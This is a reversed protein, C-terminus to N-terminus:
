FSYTMGLWFQRGLEYIDESDGAPPTRDFVNNVELSLVLLQKRYTTKEWDLRWDFAWYDPRAAKRYAVLEAPIGQETKESTSLRDRAEYEGLYRTVNTFTFNGPLRGTYIINFMHERNYDLRPLDNSNIIEGDYWVEEELNLENFIDDYSENSSQQDSYTYNVGLYHNRWQRTWSVKVSAYESSGNNNLEWDRQTQDDVTTTILERAFQDQNDRELYNIELSGNFLQQAIGVTWEDSYPTDLKSYQHGLLAQNSGPTWDTLQNSGDTRKTRTQLQYPARAERLKYTLLSQGYYRNYGGLLVTRGNRFIDWSGALRYALDTNEMYDDHSLRLGPRITFPGTEVLDDLYAAYSNITASQREAGYARRERFYVEGDLCSPDDANCNVTTDKVARNLAHEYTTQKRHFTGDDHSVETGVNFIHAFRGALVPKSVLELRGQLSEEENDIDGYGGEASYPLDYLEGWNRSPTDRPWLYHHSPAQRSNSNTLYAASIELVGYPLEETLKGSFSYGGRDIVIDSNRANDIFFEEESPTYSATLQLARSTEPLWAYKLFYNELTKKNDSWNDINFIKLDSRIIKYAGLLGMSENLPVDLELGADYKKFRPHLGQDSSHYFEERRASDIKFDTWADRTTRVSFQGGLVPRPMRIEADVVGGVFRGYRAPINSDYVTVRDILDQHIFGRQPHSPVDRISEAVNNGTLPDLTSSQNVGDITYNNEYARGGSISILPPLIEAANESTRQREGIQVRPLITITETLSSNKKPLQHLIEDSLESKGSLLDESQGVVTVQELTTINEAASEGPTADQAANETGSADIDAALTLTALTVLFVAFLTTIIRCSFMM